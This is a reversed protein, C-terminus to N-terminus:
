GRCLEKVRTRMYAEEDVLHRACKLEASGEVPNNLYDDDELWVGWFNFVGRITISDKHFWIKGRWDPRLKIIEKRLQEKNM